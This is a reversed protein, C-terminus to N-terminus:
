RDVLSTTLALGGIVPKSDHERLAGAVDTRNGPTKSAPRASENGLSFIEAVSRPALLMQTQLWTMFVWLQVSVFVLGSDILGTTLNAFHLRYITGALTM